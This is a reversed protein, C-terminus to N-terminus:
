QNITTNIQVKKQNKLWPKRYNSSCTYTYIGMEIYFYIMNAIATKIDHQIFLRCVSPSLKYQTTTKLIKKEESFLWM